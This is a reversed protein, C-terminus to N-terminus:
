NGGFIGGMQNGTGSVTGTFYADEIIDGGALTGVVGGCGTGTCVVDADSGAFSIGTELWLPRYAGIVGGVKDKGTVTGTTYVREVWCSNNCNGYLIGVHNRGTVEADLVFLNKFVGNWTPYGVLGVEDQTPRNIYLNTIAFGNGDYWGDRFEKIPTFGQGGDWSANGTLDIDGDQKFYKGSISVLVESMWRLNAASSIIYPDTITGTGSTPPAPVVGVPPNGTTRIITGSYATGSVNTAASRLAYDTNPALGGIPLSFPDGTRPECTEVGNPLERYCIATSSVDTAGPLVVDGTLTLGNTGNPYNVLDDWLGPITSATSRVVPLTYDVLLSPYTSLIKWPSTAGDVDWGVYTAATSLDASSTANEALYQTGTGSASGDLHYVDSIASPDGTYGTIGGYTGSTSTVTGVSLARTITGNEGTIGGIKNPGSVTGSFRADSLFINSGDAAGYIGGCSSGTCTVTAESSLFRSPALDRNWNNQMFGAIGGVKSTGSVTGSTHVNQMWCGNNCTGFVIGTREAGTVNADLVFLNYVSGGWQPEGFLAVSNETPRNIYLNSITFGGGDYVGRYNDTPQYGACANWNVTDSADIDATQRLYKGDLSGADGESIWRLNGLTAILYPDSATGTGAPVEVVTFATTSCESLDTAVAPTIFSALAALTLM